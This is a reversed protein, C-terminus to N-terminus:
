KKVGYWDPEKSVRLVISFPSSSNTPEFPWSGIKDGFGREEFLTEKDGYETVKRVFFVSRSPVFDLDQGFVRDRTLKRKLVRARAPALPKFGPAKRANRDISIIMVIM